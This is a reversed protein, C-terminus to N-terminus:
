WDCGWSPTASVRQVATQADAAHLLDAVPVGLDLEVRGNKM